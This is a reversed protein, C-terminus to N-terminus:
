GAPRIMAGGDVVLTQGPSFGDARNWEAPDATVGDKNRIMAARPLKVRRQTPTSRDLVTLNMDNPFPM